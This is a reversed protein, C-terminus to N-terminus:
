GFLLKLITKPKIFEQAVRYDKQMRSSIKILDKNTRAKKVVWDFIKEHLILFELWQFGRIEPELIKWLQQDYENLSQESFDNRDLARVITQAAIKGTRMSPGVGEGSFTMAFTGADGVLVFGSGSCKRQKGLVSLGWQKVETVQKANKFREKFKKSEIVEKLKNELQINKREIDELRMGVGVNCWNQDVPFIWFYGPCIGKLYYLECMGLAPHRSTTSERQKLVVEMPGQVNEFYARANVAYRGKIKSSLGVSNAIVSQSGDAGVIVKGFQEETKGQENRFQVGMMQKEKFLPKLVICQERITINKEKKCAEMLFNDFAERRVNFWTDKEQIDKELLPTYITHGSPSGILVGHIEKKPLKEFENWLGLEKVIDLCKWTKNDACIKDRPFKEKDLLLVRKGAKGLFLATTTGAPGAGCVIADFEFNPM